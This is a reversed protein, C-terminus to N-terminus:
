RDLSFTYIIYYISGVEVGGYAAPLHAPKFTSEKAASVAAGDLDASGSSENVWAEVVSGDQGIVVDVAVDGQVNEEKAMDPYNPYIRTKFGADALSVITPQDLTVWSATDDFSLTTSYTLTSLTFFVNSCTQNGTASDIDDVAFSRIGASPTVVLVAQEGQARQSLEAKLGTVVLPTSAGADTRATLHITLDGRVGKEPIFFLVYEAYRHTTGIGALEALAISAKCPTPTPTSAPKAHSASALLTIAAVMGACIASM